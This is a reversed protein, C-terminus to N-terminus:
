AMIKELIATGSKIDKVVRFSKITILKLKYTNIYNMYTKFENQRKIDIGSSQFTLEGLPKAITPKNNVQQQTQQALQRQYLITQLQSTLMSQEKPYAYIRFEFKSIQSPLPALYPLLIQKMTRSRITFAWLLRNNGNPILEVLVILFKNDSNIEIYPQSATQIDLIPKQNNDLMRADPLGRNFIIQMFGKKPQKFVSKLTAKYKDMPTSLNTETHIVMNSFGNLIGAGKHSKHRRSVHRYKKSRIRKISKKIQKNHKNKGKRLLQNYM